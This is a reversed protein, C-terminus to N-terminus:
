REVQNLGRKDAGKQEDYEYHGGVECMAGKRLHIEIIVTGRPVKRLPFLESADDVTQEGLVVFM